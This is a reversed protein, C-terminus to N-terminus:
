PVLNGLIRGDALVLHQLIMSHSGNKAPHGVLTCRDGPHLTDKSWGARVLIVLGATETTWEAADGDVIVRILAHPNAWQFGVVRGELTVTAALDYAATGHHARAMIPCVSAAAAALAAIRKANM